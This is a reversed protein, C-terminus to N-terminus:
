LCLFHVMSCYVYTALCKIELFPVNNCQCYCNHNNDHYGSSRDKCRFLSIYGIIPCSFFNFSKKKDCFIDDDAKRSTGLEACDRAISQNAVPPPASATFPGVFSDTSHRIWCRYM